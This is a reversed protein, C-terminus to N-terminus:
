RLADTPPHAPLLAPPKPGSRVCCARVLLEAFFEAAASMNDFRVRERTQIVAKFSTSIQGRIWRQGSIKLVPCKVNHDKLFRRPHELIFFTGPLAPCQLSEKTTLM